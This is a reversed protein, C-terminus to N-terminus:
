RGQFAHPKRKELFARCAEKHDESLLLRSQIEFELTLFQELTPVYLGRLMRKANSLALPPSSALEAALDRTASELAADPVVRNVLGLELAEAAGVTRASFVLDKAESLGLLQTLYFLAGIDPALGIRRFTMTFRATDSAIRMDCALALSMGGGACAGRIAGIVPKEALAVTRSMTQSAALIRRAEADDFAEMSQIDGGACFAKGAGTLVMARCEPDRDLDRVHGAVTERMRNALANLRDPRNLIITAIAGDRELLVDM